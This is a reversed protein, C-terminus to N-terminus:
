ITFLIKFDELEITLENSYIRDAFFLGKLDVGQSAFLDWRLEYYKTEDTLAYFEQQWEWGIKANAGYEGCIRFSASDIACIETSEEVLPRRHEKQLIDEKVTYNKKADVGHGGLTAMAAALSVWSKM